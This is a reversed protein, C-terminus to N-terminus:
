RTYDYFVYGNQVKGTIKNSEGETALTNMRNGNKDEIWVSVAAPKGESERFVVDSPTVATSVKAASVIATCLMVFVGMIILTSVLTEVLTEGKQSSLKAYASKM